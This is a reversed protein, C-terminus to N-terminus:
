GEKGNLSDNGASGCLTDLGNKGTITDNGGFGNIWHRTNGGSNSTITDAEKTGYQTYKADISTLVSDNKSGASTTPKPAPKVPEPTPEIVDVVTETTEPTSDQEWTGDLVAAANITSGDSFQVIEINTLIDEGEDTASNDTNGVYKVVLQAVGTSDVNATIQYNKQLDNYIATDTGDGGELIDNGEGGELEDDGGAGDLTDDGAMGNLSNAITGGEKEQILNNL